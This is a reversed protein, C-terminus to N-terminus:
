IVETAAREVWGVKGDALRIRIWDGLADVIVVRTGAHLVFADTDRLDPSNKVAVLKPLIVAQDDRSLDSYRGIGIVLLIVFLVGSGIMALFGARRVAFTRATLLVALAALLIVYLSWASWFLGEPSFFAKVQDWYDWIFLRPVPEIKDVTMMTALNLNYLLDEDNPDLRLGREYNLIARGMDQMRFYTNGLNLFLSSSELGNALVSEYRDRAEPFQGDQYLGNAEAFVAAPDQAIGTGACAIM